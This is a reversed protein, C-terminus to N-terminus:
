KEKKMDSLILQRVYDTKNKVRDFYEVLEPETLKNFSICYCRLAKNAYKKQARLVYDKM